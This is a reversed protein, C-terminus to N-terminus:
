TSCVFCVTGHSWKTSLQLDTAPALGALVEDLNLFFM